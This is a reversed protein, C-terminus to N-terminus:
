QNSLKPPNSGLCISWQLVYFSCPAILFKSCSVSQVSSVNSCPHISGNSFQNDSYQLCSFEHPKSFISDHFAHSSTLCEICKFLSSLSCHHIITSYFPLITVPSPLPPSCIYTSFIYISFFPSCILFIWSTHVTQVICKYIHLYISRSLFSFFSPFYPPFSVCLSFILFTKLLGLNCPKWWELTFYSDEDM